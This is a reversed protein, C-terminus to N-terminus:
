SRIVAIETNGRTSGSKGTIKGVFSFTREKGPHIWYEIDDLATLRDTQSRSDVVVAAIHEGQNQITVIPSVTSDAIDQLTQDLEFRKTQTM